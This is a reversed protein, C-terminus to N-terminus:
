EIKYQRLLVQQQDNPHSMGELAVKLPLDRSRHFDLFERPDSLLADQIFQMSDSVAYGERLLRYRHSHLLSSM